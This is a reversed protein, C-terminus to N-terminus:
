CRVVDSSQDNSILFHLRKKRAPPPLSVLSCGWILASLVNGPFGETLTAVDVDGCFSTVGLTHIRVSFVAVVCQWCHPKNNNYLRLISLSSPPLTMITTYAIDHGFDHFFRLSFFALSFVTFILVIVFLYIFRQLRWWGYCLRCCFSCGATSWESTRYLESEPGATVSPSFRSPDCKRTTFLRRKDVTERNFSCSVVRIAGYAVPKVWLCGSTLVAPSHLWVGWISMWVWSTGLWSGFRSLLAWSEPLKLFDCLLLGWVCINAVLESKKQDPSM